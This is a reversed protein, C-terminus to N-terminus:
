SVCTRGEPIFDLGQRHIDTTRSCLQTVPTLTIAVSRHPEPILASFSLTSKHGWIISLFIEVVALDSQLGMASSLGQQM